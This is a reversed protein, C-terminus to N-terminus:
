VPGMHLPTRSSCNWFACDAQPGATKTHEADKMSVCKVKLCLLKGSDSMLGEISQKGVHIFVLMNASPQDGRILTDTHKTFAQGQTVRAHLKGETRCSPGRATADKPHGKRNSVKQLNLLKM